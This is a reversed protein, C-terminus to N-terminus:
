KGNERSEIIEIRANKKLEAEWEAMKKQQKRARVRNEIYGRVQSFQPKVEPSYKLLKLVHFSDPTRILGSVEGVSLKKAEAYLEAQKNKNLELERVVFTGDSPFDLVNNGSYNKIRRILDAAKDPAGKDDEDLFLVFDAVVIKEPTSFEKEIEDYEKKVEDESITVQSSVEKEFIRKVMLNKELDERLDEETMQRKELTERYKEEGVKAKIEAVIKDLEDRDM